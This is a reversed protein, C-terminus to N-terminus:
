GLFRGYTSMCSSYGIGTFPDGIKVVSPLLQIPIHVLLIVGPLGPASAGGSPALNPYGLYGSSNGVGKRYLLNLYSNFFIGLNLYPIIFLLV